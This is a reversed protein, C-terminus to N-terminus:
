RWARMFYRWNAPSAAVPKGATSTLKLIVPGSDAGFQASVNTDDAFMQIGVGSTGGGFQHMSTICVEDGISYGFEPTICRIYGLYLRPIRTFGHADNFPSGLSFTHGPSAPAQIYDAGGDPLDNFGPPSNGEHRIIKLGGGEDVKLTDAGNTIINTPANANGLTVVNGSSMFILNRYTGPTTTEGTLTVNNEMRMGAKHDTVANFVPVASFTIIDTFTQAINKRAFNTDILADQIAVNGAVGDGNTVTIYSGGATIARKEFKPGAGTTPNATRVMFGNALDPDALNLLIEGPWGCIVNNTATLSVKNNGNTSYVVTTRSITTATVLTGYGCEIAPPSAGNYITYIIKNGTAIQPSFAMRGPEAGLLTITGTGTTNTTEHIGNGLQFAM